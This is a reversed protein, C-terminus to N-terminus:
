ILNLSGYPCWPYWSYDWLASTDSCKRMQTTMELKLVFLFIIWATVWCCHHLVAPHKSQTNTMKRGSIGSSDIMEKLSLGFCEIQGLKIRTERMIEKTHMQTILNRTEACAARGYRALHVTVDDYAVLWHVAHAEGHGAEEEEEGEDHDSHAAALVGPGGDLIPKYQLKLVVARFFSPVRGEPPWVDASCRLSQKVNLDFEKESCVKTLPPTVKGKEEWNRTRWTGSEPQCLQPLM